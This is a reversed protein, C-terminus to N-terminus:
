KKIIKNTSILLILAIANLIMGIITFLNINREPSSLKLGIGIGLVFLAVIMIIIGIKRKNM